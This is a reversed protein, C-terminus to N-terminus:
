NTSQSDQSKQENKGPLHTYAMSMQKGMRELEDKMIM